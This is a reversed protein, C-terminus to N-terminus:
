VSFGAHVASIVSIIGVNDSSGGFYDSVWLINVSFVYVSKTFDPTM